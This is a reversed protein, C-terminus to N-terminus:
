RPPRRQYRRPRSYVLYVPNSKHGLRAVAHQSRQPPEHRLGSCQYPAREIRLPSPSPLAAEKGSWHRLCRAGIAIAAGRPCRRQTQNTRRSPNRQHGFGSNDMTTLMPFPTWRKNTAM